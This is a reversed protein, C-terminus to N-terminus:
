MKLARKKALARLQAWYQLALSQGRRAGFGTSTSSNSVACSCAFFFLFFFALFNSGDVRSSVIASNWGFTELYKPPSPVEACFDPMNLGDAVIVCPKPDVAPVAIPAVIPAVVCDAIRAVADVM